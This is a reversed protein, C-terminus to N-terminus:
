KMLSPDDLPGKKPLGPKLDMPPIENKGAKVTTKITSNEAREYAGNLADPREGDGRAPKSMDPWFVTIVYEGEIAGKGRGPTEIEFAGKADCTGYPTQETLADRGARHLFVM